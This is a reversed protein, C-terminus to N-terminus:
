LKQFSTFKYKGEASLVKALYLGSPLDRLSYLLKTGANLQQSFVRHGWPNWIDVHLDTPELNEIQIWADAPNPYLRVRAEEYHQSKVPQGTIRINDIIILDGKMDPLGLTSDITGQLALNTIEIFVFGRHQIGLKHRKFQIADSAEVITNNSLMVGNENRLVIHTSASLHSPLMLSDMINGNAAVQAIDFELAADTLQRTDACMYISTTFKPNGLIFSSPSSIPVIAKASNLFSHGTIVACASGQIEVITYNSFSDSKFAMVDTDFTFDSFTESFGADANDLYIVQFHSANNNLASDQAYFLKVEAQRIGTFNRPVDVTPLRLFNGPYVSTRLQFSLPELSLNESRFELGLETGRPLVTCGNYLAFGSVRYVSTDMCPSGNVLIQALSFDYDHRNQQRVINLNIRNNSTDPDNPLLAWVIIRNTGLKDLFALQSLDYELSRGPLLDQELTYLERRVVGSNVTFKFEVETGKPIVESCGNNVLKLEVKYNGDRCVTTSLSANILLVDGEMVRHGVGVAQWAEAVNKYQESCPGYHLATSLLSAERADYYGSTPTLYNLWMDYVLRAAQDIGIASVSFTKGFENVGAGGEALLYFWYNLVGSNTHVGGNDASGSTWFRGKYAKPHRMQNPNAMNRIGTDRKSIFINEGILWNFKQPNYRKEVCKGLIDSFGENLAGSEYLYELSCTFETVGHALEHGVVDLSTFPSFQKGDGLGFVAATGDWYANNYVQTDLLQCTVKGGKGDIGERGFVDELYDWTYQAGVHVDHAGVKHSFNNEDWHNDDDRYTEKYQNVTRIGEGRSQDHLYFLNEGRTTCIERKGIYLTNAIGKEGFCHTLIDFMKLLSGNHADIFLRIRRVPMEALLDIRYALKYDGSSLPYEVDLWVLEVKTDAPMHNPRETENTQIGSYQIALATAMELSIQPETLPLDHSLWHGNAAVVVDEKSHIIYQAGLVKINHLYQQYRYHNFGFDDQSKQLLVMETGPPLSLQDKTAEFFRSPSIRLDKNIEVFHNTGYRRIIYRDDGQGYLSNNILKLLIFFIGIGRKM